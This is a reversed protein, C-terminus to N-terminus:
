GHYIRTGRGNGALKVRWAYPLADTHSEERTPGRANPPPVVRYDLGHREAYAIADVLTAFILHRGSRDQGGGPRELWGGSAPDLELVWCRVASYILCFPRGSLRGARRPLLPPPQGQAESNNTQYGGVERWLAHSLPANRDVGVRSRTSTTFDLTAM